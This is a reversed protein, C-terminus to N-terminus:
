NATNSAMADAAPEGDLVGTAILRRILTEDVRGTLAMGHDLQFRRIADGTERGMNGDATLPGYAARALANQVALVAPDAREDTRLASTTQPRPDPRAIASAGNDVSRASEIRGNDIPLRELAELLAASPRDSGGIGAQRRYAKIAARTEPGALGDIAGSYFNLEGLKEQVAATLAREAITPGASTAAAPVPAERTQFMPAPHQGAQVLLANVVIGTAVIAFGFYSLGGVSVAKRLRIM